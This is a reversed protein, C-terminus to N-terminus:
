HLFMEVLVHVYTGTCHVKAEGGYCYDGKTHSCNLLNLENGNCQVSSLVITSASNSESPSTYGVAGSIFSLFSCQWVNIKNENLKDVHVHKERGRGGVRMGKLFNVVM